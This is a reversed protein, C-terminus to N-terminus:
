REAAGSNVVCPKAHEFSIGVSYLFASADPTKLLRVKDLIENFCGWRSPMLEGKYTDCV